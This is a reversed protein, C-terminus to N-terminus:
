RFIRRTRPKADAEVKDEKAKKKELETAKRKKTTARDFAKGVAPPMFRRVLAAHRPFRRILDVMFEPTLNGPDEDLLARLAAVLREPALDSSSVLLLERARDADTERRKFPRFSIPRLKM